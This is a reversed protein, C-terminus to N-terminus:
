KITYLYEDILITYRIFKYSCLEEMDINGILLIYIHISYILLSNFKKSCLDYLSTVIM